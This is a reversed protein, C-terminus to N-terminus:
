PSGFRRESSPVGELPWGEKWSGIPVRLIGSRLIVALQRAETESKSGTIQGRGAFTEAKVAPMSRVKGDLVIAILGPPNQHYLIRAAVDFRRSGEPNLEFATVWEVGEKMPARRLYLWALFGLTSVIGILVVLLIWPLPRSSPTALAGGAPRM